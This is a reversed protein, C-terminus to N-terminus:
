RWQEITLDVIKRLEGKLGKVEYIKYNNIINDIKEKSFNEKFNWHLDIIEDIEVEYISEAGYCKILIEQFDFPTLISQPIIDHYKYQIYFILDNMNDVNINGKIFFKENIHKHKLEYVYSKESKLKNDV